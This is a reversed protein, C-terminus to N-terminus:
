DIGYLAKLFLTLEGTKKYSQNNVNFDALTQGLEAGRDVFYYESHAVIIKHPSIVWLVHAKCNKYNYQLIDGVKFIAM